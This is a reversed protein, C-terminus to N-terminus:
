GVAMNSPSGFVRRHLAYIIVTMLFLVTALASALGWNITQNTYFAIFYAIMQDAPGGVLAPTIYYGLSLFFVLLCGASVGPMSLPFYVRRFATLPGVGLSLAARMYSPSIRIMTSYIPLIMFPLLVQIMAVYVGTRNYILQVPEAFVGLSVAVDNVIGERQLLVIWSSTRVLLSTWFPVLVVIMLANAMGRPLHALLHALPYALVLCSATVVLGLKITRWFIGIFIAEKEPRSVIDGFRDQMLDVAFLLYFPTVARTSRKVVAWTDPEAWRRDAAILADRVGDGELTASVRRTKRMLTRFGVGDFNLRRVAVALAARDQEHSTQLEEVFTAMTAEEPLATGDWHRLASATHPFVSSASDDHFSNTLMGLMPFVFFTGIFLLSPALLLVAHLSARRRALQVDSHVPRSRARAITPAGGALPACPTRGAIM